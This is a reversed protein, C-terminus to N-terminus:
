LHIIKLSPFVAECQRAIEFRHCRKSACACFIAAKRQRDLIDKLQKLGRDINHIKIKPEIFSSCHAVKYLENGLDPIHYYLSGLSDRLVRQNWEWHSSVPNFRVDVLPVFLAKLDSLMQKSRTQLYGFTYLHYGDLLRERHYCSCVWDGHKNCIWEREQHCNGCVGKDSPPTKLYAMLEEKHNTALERQKATLDGKVILKDREVRIVTNVNEAMIMNKIMRAHYRDLDAM